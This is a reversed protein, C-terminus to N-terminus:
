IDPNVLQELLIQEYRWLIPSAFELGTQMILTASPCLWAWNDAYQRAAKPNGLCPQITEM